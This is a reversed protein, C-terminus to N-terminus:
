AEKNCEIYHLLEKQLYGDKSNSVGMKKKPEIKVKIIIIIILFKFYFISCISVIIFGLSSIHDLDM